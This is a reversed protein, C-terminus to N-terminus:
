GKVPTAGSTVRKTMASAAKTVAPLVHQIFFDANVEVVAQALAIAEDMSLGEVWDTPKGTATALAAFVNEGHDGVLQLWNVDGGKITDMFPACARAMAPLKGFKIPTIAMTEGAIELTIPTPILAELENM